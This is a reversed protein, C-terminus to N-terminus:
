EQAIGIVRGAKGDAPRLKPLQCGKRLLLSDPQNYILAEQIKALSFPLAGHDSIQLIEGM